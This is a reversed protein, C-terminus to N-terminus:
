YPRKNKRMDFVCLLEITNDTIRYYIRNHPQLTVSRINIKKQSPKGIEPYQAILETRQQLKDLFIFAVKASHKQLLYNYIHFANKRFRKSLVIKKEM